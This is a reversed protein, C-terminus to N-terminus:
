GLGLRLQTPYFLLLLVAKKVNTVTIHLLSSLMQRLEKAERFLEAVSGQCNDSFDVLWVVQEDDSM